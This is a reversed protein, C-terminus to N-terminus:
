EEHREQESELEEDDALALDLGELINIAERLVKRDENM